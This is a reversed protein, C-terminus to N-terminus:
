ATSSTFIDPQWTITINGDQLSIPTIGGDDTMDIFGICDDNTNTDNYVLAQEIDIPGAGNQTWATPGSTVEFTTTSGVRTWTCTIIEGGTTYGNGGAVQTYTALEPTVDTIDAVVTDNILAVKYVGADMDLLGNGLSITTKDFLLLTGQAM